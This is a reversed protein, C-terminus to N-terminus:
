QKKFYIDTGNNSIHLHKGYLEIITYDPSFGYNNYFRSLKLASKFFKYGTSDGNNILGACMFSITKNNNDLFYTGGVASQMYFTAPPDLTPDGFDVKLDTLTNPALLNDFDQSHEIGYIQYSTINWTGEIRKVPNRFSIFPDEPYKHCGVFLSSLIVLVPLIRFLPKM